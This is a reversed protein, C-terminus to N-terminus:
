PEKSAPALWNYYKKVNFFRDDHAPKPAKKPKDGRALSGRAEFPKKAARKAAFRERLEDFQNLKVKSM